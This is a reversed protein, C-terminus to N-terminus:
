CVIDPRESIAKLNIIAGVDDICPKLKVWANLKNPKM